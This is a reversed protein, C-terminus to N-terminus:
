NTYVENFLNIIEKKRKTAYEYAIKTGSRAKSHTLMKNPKKVQPTYNPNYYFVCFDSKDIMEYNREVYSFKGAKELQLPFYTEEYYELLYDTYSNNIQMFSSRVYVRKIFSYQEQLRTVVQWALDDFDSKSGFFFTTVGKKVLTDVTKTLISILRETKEVNRHGIFCAQM